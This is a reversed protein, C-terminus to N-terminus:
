SSRAARIRCIADLVSEVTINRMCPRDPPSLQCEREVCPACALGEWAQVVIGGSRPGTRAPDQPGSLCVVPLGVAVAMPLSSLRPFDVPTIWLFSFTLNQGVGSVWPRKYRGRGATQERALVYATGTVEGRSILRKAEENTSDVIDLSFSQM